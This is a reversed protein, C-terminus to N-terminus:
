QKDPQNTAFQEYGRRVRKVQDSLLRLEEGNRAMNLLEQDTEGNVMADFLFERSRQRDHKSKMKTWGKQATEAFHKVM